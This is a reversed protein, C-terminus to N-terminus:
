LKPLESMPHLALRPLFYAPRPADAKWYKEQKAERAYAWGAIHMEPTMGLVLIFPKEDADKKKIPLGWSHRCRRVQYPGVDDADYLGLNSNWYRDLYKAVAIEGACGEIHRTWGDGGDGHGRGEFVNQMQRECGALAAMRVEMPSLPVIIGGDHRVVMQNM